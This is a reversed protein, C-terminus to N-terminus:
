RYVHTYINIYTQKDCPPEDEHGPTPGALREDEGARGAGLGGLCVRRSGGGGSGELSPRSLSLVLSRSIPESEEEEAGCCCIM